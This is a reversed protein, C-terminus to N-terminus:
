AVTPSWILCSFTVLNPLQLRGFASLPVWAYWGFQHSYGAPRYVYEPVYARPDAALFATGVARSGNQTLGYTMGLDGSVDGFYRLTSNLLMAETFTLVEGAGGDPGPQDLSLIHHSDRLTVFSLELNAYGLASVSLNRLVQM